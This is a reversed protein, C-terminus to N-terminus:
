GFKRRLRPVVHTAFLRLFRAQDNGPAHFVLHNFGLGVYAGIREVMEDADDTVIWRSSARELPLSDALRELELPDEVNMKEDSTLALAGWFRTDELARQRDTDFSVKLEIMKDYDMSASRGSAELGAALNPLLTETYL